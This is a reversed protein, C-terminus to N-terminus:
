SEERQLILGLALFVSAVPPAWAALMPEVQGNEGLIQAFNRVYYLGFGLLVAALVSVGTKGMRSHGMTFGAAVLVMAVLFLPKALEMQLWVVHRRASFGAIELQKIYAPLEWIPVVFPTGFSSRIRDQTLTSSVTMFDHETANNEANLGSGLPWSKADNLVWEGDRLEASGAEIRQAPGSGPAYAVFSVDYLVTAEPNARAARIVTQSQGDGQRLWLGESGISLASVGGNQYTERLDGYRKSTAAVIPNFIGVALAGLVVAVIAPGLIVALGSRGTARMAVLESSRALGVFLSIASLIMVLPLIQYLGQPTNLLTLGLIKGFSVDDFRRLQDVLDLLVIFGFFVTLVALFTWLFRRATYLHMTM